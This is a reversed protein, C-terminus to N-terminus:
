VRNRKQEDLDSFTCYGYTKYSNDDNISTACWGYKSSDNPENNNRDIHNNTIHSCNQLPKPPLPAIIKNM